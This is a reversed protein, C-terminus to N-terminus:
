ATTAPRATKFWSAVVGILACLELEALRDLFPVGELDAVTYITSCPTDWGTPITQVEHAALLVQRTQSVDCRLSVRNPNASANFADVQALVRPSLAM